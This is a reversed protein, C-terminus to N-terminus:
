VVYVDSGNHSVVTVLTGASAASNVTVSQTSAGVTLTVTRGGTADQVLVMYIVAGAALGTVTVTVNGNLTGVLLVDKHGTTALTYATGLNGPTLVRRADVSLSNRVQQTRSQAGATVTYDYEDADVFAEIYGDTNSVGSAATLDVPDDTAYLTLAGGGTDEAELSAGSVARGERDQVTVNISSRAM